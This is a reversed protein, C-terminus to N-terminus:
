NLNKRIRSLQTPTIGLHLAIHHLTLRNELEPYHEQFALYRLGADQQAIAIEREEKELLWNRELYHIQYMKLDDYKYLLQRFKKYNIEVIISDELSEIALDSPTQMMLSSMVGPFQGETFFNKNYQAGEENTSVLRFLGKVVYSFSTPVLGQSYLVEGKTVQKLTCIDAIALHTEDALTFYGDM